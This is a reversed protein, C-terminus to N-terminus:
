KRCTMHRCHQGDSCQSDFVCTGGHPRGDFYCVMQHCSYETPCESDFVCSKGQLHKRVSGKWCTMDRCQYESPCQNDFVCSQNVLHNKQGGGDICMSHNCIDNENCEYSFSCAKPLNPPLPSYKCLNQVCPRGTPCDENNNCPERTGYGGPCSCIPCNDTYILFQNCDTGCIAPPCSDTVFMRANPPFSKYCKGNICIQCKGDICTEQVSVSGNMTVTDSSALCLLSYAFIAGLLIARMTRLILANMEYWLVILL